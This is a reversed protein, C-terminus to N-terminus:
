QPELLYQLSPKLGARIVDAFKRYLLASHTFTKPKYLDVINFKSNLVNFLENDIESTFRYYVQVM